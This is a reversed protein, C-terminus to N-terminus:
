PYVVAFIWARDRDESLVLFEFSLVGPVTHTRKFNMLFAGIESPM